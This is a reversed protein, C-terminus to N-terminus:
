IFEVGGGPNLAAYWALALAIVTDDHGGSPASYRFGGSPLRELTYSHLEHLLVPDPLIALERRELALALAEILAPKSRATTTFPYVPLGEAQLAEINPAGISNAEAWASQVNWQAFLAAVRGRQLSWGVETFRDLALLQGNSANLIAVATYDHERGWDIGAVVRDEGRVVANYPASAAETVGRFVAGADELFEALYEMRFSREPTTRRITDLDAASIRPNATSPFQYSKWEPQTPDLGLSYVGWFWNRGYPTSLFLAGGRRELLMPRIVEPWTVPELFAAEDLVVFDLGAGRLTDPTHASRVAIEGGNPLTIRHEAANVAVNPIPALTVKLARWVDSAMLYTPAVWWCVQGVLARRIIAQKGLETKGFRRGCAVVRYRHSDALIQRQARHPRPLRLTARPNTPTLM